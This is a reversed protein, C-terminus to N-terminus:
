PANCSKWLDGFINTRTIPEISRFCPEHFIWYVHHQIKWSRQNSCAADPVQVSATESALLVGDSDDLVALLANLLYDPPLM